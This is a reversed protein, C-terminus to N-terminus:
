ATATRTQAPPVTTAATPPPLQQAKLQYALFTFSTPHFNNISVAIGDIKRINADSLGLGELAANLTQLQAEKNTTSVPATIANAVVASTTALAASVVPALVASSATSFQSFPNATFLGASEVNQASPTFEDGIAPSSINTSANSQTSPQSAQAESVAQNFLIESLNVFGITALNEGEV